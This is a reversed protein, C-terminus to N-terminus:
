LQHYKVRASLTRALISFIYINEERAVKGAIKM